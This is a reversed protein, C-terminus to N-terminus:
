SVLLYTFILHIFLYKQFKTLQFNYREKDEKRLYSFSPRDLDVRIWGQRIRRPYKNICLSSDKLTNTHGFNCHAKLNSVNKKYVLKVIDM